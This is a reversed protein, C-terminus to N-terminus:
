VVVELYVTNGSIAKLKYECDYNLLFEFQQGKFASLEDIYAGITGEPVVIAYKYRKQYRLNVTPFYMISFEAHKYRLVLVIWHYYM